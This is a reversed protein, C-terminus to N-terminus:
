RQQSSASLVTTLVVAITALLLLGLFYYLYLFITPNVLYVVIVEILGLIAFIRSYIRNELAVKKEGWLYIISIPIALLTAKVLREWSFPIFNAITNSIVDSLFKGVGFGIIIRLYEGVKIYNKNM